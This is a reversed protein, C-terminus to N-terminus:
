ADPTGGVGAKWPGMIGCGEVLWGGQRGRWPGLERKLGGEFSKPRVRM